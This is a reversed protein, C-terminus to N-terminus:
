PNLEGRSWSRGPVANGGLKGLGRLAACNVTGDSTPRGLGHQGTGASQAVKRQARRQTRDAPHDANAAAPRGAVRAFEAEPVAGLYHRSAVAPSHGMWEATVFPARGM